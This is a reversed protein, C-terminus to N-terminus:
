VVFSEPPACCTQHGVHSWREPPDGVGVCAWSILGGMHGVRGGGGEFGISEVCSTLHWGLVSTTDSHWSRRRVKDRDRGRRAPQHGVLRGVTKAVPRGVSAGALKSVSERVRRGVSQCSLMFWQFFAGGVFVCSICIRGFSAMLVSSSPRSRWCWRRTHM